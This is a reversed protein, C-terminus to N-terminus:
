SAMLITVYRFEMHKLWRRHILFAMCLSVTTVKKNYNKKRIKVEIYFAGTIESGIISVRQKQREGVQYLRSTEFAVKM